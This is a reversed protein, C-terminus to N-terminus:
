FKWALGLTFGLADIGPNPDTMGLNSHHVFYLGAILSLDDRLHQRVALQSFWNFALDQGQGGTGGASNIWGLGGGISCVFSTQSSPLWYELSPAASLGLYYDEPGETITESIAAFRSRVILARGAEDKWLTFVVPSRLVLQTPIIEYDLPSNERIKWLYGSELACEWSDAPHAPAAQTAPATALALLLAPIM